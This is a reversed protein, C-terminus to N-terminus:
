YVSVERMRPLMQTSVNPSHTLGGGQLFGSSLLTVEHWVTSLLAPVPSSEQSILQLIFKASGATGGLNSSSTKFWYGCPERTVLFDENKDTHKM